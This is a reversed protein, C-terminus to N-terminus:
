DGEQGVGLQCRERIEDRHEQEHSVQVLQQM